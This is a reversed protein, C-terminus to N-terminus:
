FEGNYDRTSRKETTGGNKTDKQVKSKLAIQIWTGVSKKWSVIPVYRKGDKRQWHTAEYFEWMKEFEVLAMPKDQSVHAFYMTEFYSYMVARSAPAGNPSFVEPAPLLTSEAEILLGKSKLEEIGKDFLYESGGWTTRARKTNHAAMISLLVEAANPSLEKFDIPKGIKLAM